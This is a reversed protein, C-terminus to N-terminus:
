IEEDEINIEEVNEINDPAATKEEAKKIVWVTINVKLQWVKIDSQKTDGKEQKVKENILSFSNVTSKYPLKELLGLLNVLGSWNGTASVVVQLKEKNLGSLEDSTEEVVSDVSGQVGVSSMLGEVTQIFEVISEQKLFLISIRDGYSITKRLNMEIEQLNAFRAKADSLETYYTSVEVMNTKLKLYVYAYLGGACLAGITSIMILSKIKKDM